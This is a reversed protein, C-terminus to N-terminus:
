SKNLEVSAFSSWDKEGHGAAVAALMRDHILSALPMAVEGRDATQWVLRADKLGLRLTFGAPEFKREAIMTGYGQYVPSQFLRNIIDLFMKSQIGYASVLAYAESLTELAAAITFNGAIKVAKASSPEDGVTLVGQGMAELLPRVKTIASPEGGALVWLKRAAAAEPRGFVPASVFAQGCDSHARALRDVLAVSITSMSIHTAGPPLAKLLGSGSSAASREGGGWAVDEVAADDALMTIAAEAGAVAETVTSAVQAGAARLKEAKAATRNFVTLTHGAGLLHGAMPEGMQGLGLFAIKM